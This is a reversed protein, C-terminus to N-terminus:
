MLWQPVERHRIEHETVKNLWASKQGLATQDILMGPLFQFSEMFCLLPVQYGQGLLQLLYRFPFSGQNSTCGLNLPLLLFNGTLFHALIPVTQDNLVQGM